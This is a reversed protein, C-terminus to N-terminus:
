QRLIQMIVLYFHLLGDVTMMGALLPM